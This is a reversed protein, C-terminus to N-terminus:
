FQLHVWRWSQCDWEKGITHFCTRTCHIPDRPWCPMMHYSNQPIFLPCELDAIPSFIAMSKQTDPGIRPECRSDPLLEEFIISRVIPYNITMGNRPKCSSFVSCFYLDFQSDSHVDTTFDCPFSLKNCSYFLCFAQGICFIHIKSSNTPCSMSM